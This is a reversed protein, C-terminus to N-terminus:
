KKYTPLLEKVQKIVDKTRMTLPECKGRMIELLEGAGNGSEGLPEGSIATKNAHKLANTVAFIVTGAPGRIALIPPQGMFQDELIRPLEERLYHVLGKGKDLHRQLFSLDFQCPLQRLFCRADDESNLHAILATPLHQACDSSVHPGFFYAILAKALTSRCYEEATYCNATEAKPRNIFDEIARIEGGNLNSDRVLCQLVLADIEQESNELECIASKYQTSLACYTENDVHSQTDYGTGCHGNNAKQHFFSQPSVLAFLKQKATVCVAALDNLSKQEANTFAPVVLKKLDGVQFNITPNLDHAMATALSSNLYALIAGEMDPDNIFIASSGVDFIAGAPLKRVALRDKSVFSFTLGSKFYFDENKVVWAYKGKLYPYAECVAEKIERGNDEWLVLTSPPSWWREAGEGRAYPVYRKGIDEPNIEWIYRLFRANDTTALGQRLDAIEALKPLRDRLDGVVPPRMYNIVRDQDKLFDAQRRVAEIVDYAELVSQANQGLRLQLIGAKNTEAVLSLFRGEQDGAPRSNRIMLLATSAKEGAVLPFVGSGLEVVQVLQHNNLIRERLSRASALHLISGQTIFGVVGAPKAMDLAMSLFAQSLDNAADPYHQKLKEKLPRPLLKRGLYPPNAVVVDYKKGLPHASIQRLTKDLSGMPFQDLGPEEKEQAEQIPAPEAEEILTLNRLPLLTEIQGDTLDVSQAKLIISLAATALATTDIDVGFLNESLTKQCAEAASLGFRQYAATYLPMAQVLFVGGGLAPDLLTIEKLESLSSLAQLKECLTHKLLYEVVWTPTYVQTFSILHRADLFQRDEQLHDKSSRRERLSFAEYISSPCLPSLFVQRALRHNAMTLFDEKISKDALLTRTEQLLESLQKSSPETLARPWLDALLKIENDFSAQAEKGREKEKERERERELERERAEEIEDSGNALARHYAAGLLLACALFAERSATSKHSHKQWWRQLLARLKRLGQAQAQEETPVHKGVTQKEEPQGVPKIPAM